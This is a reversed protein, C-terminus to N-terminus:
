SSDILTNLDMRILQRQVESTITNATKTDDTLKSIKCTINDDIDNVYITFLIPELVSGQPVGSNVSIWDSAKKRKISSTAKAM